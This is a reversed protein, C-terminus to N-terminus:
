QVQALLTSLITENDGAEFWNIDKYRRFWTLQRKAYRRSNRKILRIVEEKEREGRFYPKWESYGISQLAPAEPSYQEFLQTVEKELGEELMQDVRQNIREYLLSREDSLGLKIWKWPYPKAKRGKRFHSIAKGSARYVELARIVRAHNNKDIQAFTIPDIQELEGLLPALGKEGFENMLGERVEMPIEPMEDFAYWLADMYLTSGGVIILHEQEELLAHIQEEAEEAFDAANYAQTPELQNIFHHKIQSLEETSPKATGIDLYKYMQRSDSSIIETQLKQALQLALSSKGVATPGIICIVAKM